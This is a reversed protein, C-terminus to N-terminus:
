ICCNERIERQNLYLTNVISRLGDKEPHCFNLVGPWSRLLSVLVFHTWQLQTETSFNTESVSDWNWIFPDKVSLVGSEKIAEDCEKTLLQTLKNKNSSSKGKTRALDFWDPSKSYPPDFNVPDPENLIDYELPPNPSLPLLEPVNFIQPETYTDFEPVYPNNDTGNGVTGKSHKEAIDSLADRVDRLVSATRSTMFLEVLTGLVARIMRDRIDPPTM